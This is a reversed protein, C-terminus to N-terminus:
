PHRSEYCTPEISVSIKVELVSLCAALAAFELSQAHAPLSDPLVVGRSLGVRPWDLGPRLAGVMSEVNCTEWGGNDRNEETVERKSDAAM